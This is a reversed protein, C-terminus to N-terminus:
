EDKDKYDNTEINHRKLLKQFNRREVAAMEAARSINGGSKEMIAKLYQREASDVVKKKYEQFSESTDCFVPDQQSSVSSGRTQTLKEPLDDLGFQESDSLICVSEIVNKLERVNGPWSYNMLCEKFGNTMCGADRGNLKLFHAALLPIDGTRESLPPLEIRVVELRYFLDKRFTGNMIGEELNQNTAAIVRVDIKVPHSDGVRLIEGSELVRLLKSQLNVNMEGIEDLFLSGGDTSEFYGKKDSVAGTFAGKKYGFLESELIEGSIAACNVALFPKNRRPSMHHIGRAVLEKGTGSAGTILVNCSINSVKEVLKYVKNIEESKGIMNCFSYRLNLESRLRDNEQCLTKLQQIRSLVALVEDESFPKMLYDYAGKKMISVASKVTAYATMIVFYIEPNEKKVTELFEEGNMQPMKLDSIIVEPQESNLRELASLPSDFEHVEYGERCLIIKLIKRLSDEDDVIFIKM